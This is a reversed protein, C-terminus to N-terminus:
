PAQRGTPPMRRRWPIGWWTGQHARGASQGPTTCAPDSQHGARQLVYLRTEDCVFGAVGLGPKQPNAHRGCSQARLTPKLPARVQQKQCCFELRAQEAAGVRAHQNHRAGAVIAAVAQHRRAVEVM